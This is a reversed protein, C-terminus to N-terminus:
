SECHINHSLLSQAGVRAEKHYAVLKMNELQRSVRSLQSLLSTCSDEIETWKSKAYVNHPTQIGKITRIGEGNIAFEDVPLPHQKIIQQTLVQIAENWKLNHKKSEEFAEIIEQSDEDRFYLTAEYWRDGVQISGLSISKSM